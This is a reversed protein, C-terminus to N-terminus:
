KRTDDPYVFIKLISKYNNPNLMKVEFSSQPINGHQPVDADLSWRPGLSFLETPENPPNGNIADDGVETCIFSIIFM